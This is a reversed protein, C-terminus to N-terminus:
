GPPPGRLEGKPPALNVVKGTAAAEYIAAIIRMDQLGEEGPTHPTRNDRIRSAFHDMELAFQNKAELRREEVQEQSAGERQQGIRMRQGNYSFAPDLDVWGREGTVRYRKSEHSGYSTDCSAHVGSPFRLMFHVQEEVERFRPDDPTSYSMAQVATPEEGTIYRAANLCYIGVDPLAGGGALSRKLRWQNPDGQNQCNSASFGKLKGLEGARAMRIIERNYPEYQMRYAVMLKRGHKQCADIMQECEGVSNAMPKECLVHKNAEAARVTYEAHMGNPLVIYVADIAKDDRIRDYTGYDYIASAKLGYQAAVNAAKARDGSVLAALRCLKSQTLAPLIEELTLRGLGVVALGVRQEPPLPAPAEERERETPALVRPLHVPGQTRASTQAVATGENRCSAAGVLSAAAGGALAIGTTQLIRRRSPDAPAPPKNSM